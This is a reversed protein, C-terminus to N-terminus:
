EVTWGDRRRDRWGVRWGDGDMEGGVGEDLEVKKDM